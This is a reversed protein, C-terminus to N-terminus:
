IARSRTDMFSPEIKHWPTFTTELEQARGTRASAYAKFLIEHVHLQQPGGCTPTARGQICDAFHDILGEGTINPIPKIPVRYCDARGNWTLPEAGPVPKKPSHIIVDKGALFLAGQRGYIETSNRFTPTGWLARLVAQQGGAWEVVLTVNDDINSEVTKEGVLRHPILTNAFATVRKAPGLLTILRSAPYVLTDLMVGGAVERDYYWNDRSHGDIILQAEAGTFVGLAAENVYSLATMFPASADFPLSLFVTDARQAAAVMAKCDGLTTAMPKECLVPIGRELAAIAPAAHVNSPTAIVVGDPQVTDYMAEYDDFWAGIGYEVARAKASNLTRACTAVFKARKGAAAQKLYRHSIQGAGVIALRLLGSRPTKKKAPKGAAPKPQVPVSAAQDAQAPAVDASSAVVGAAATQVLFERRTSM